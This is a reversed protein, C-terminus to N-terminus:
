RTLRMGYEEAAWKWSSNVVLTSDYEEIVCPGTGREGPKLSDRKLVGVPEFRQGVWAIRTSASGPAAPASASSLRTPRRRVSARVRINVVEMEDALAYGYLERHREDFAKRVASDSAYPLVLEHSQGSYRGEFYRRVSYDPFGEARMERAAVSELSHFRDRLRPGREMVPSTFTRTVEGVLLGYASFLGAHLPVVVDDVELDEALDCAHVPGAGGFAVMVFERPDRGREITVMSLARAMDNNVLRIIGRSAALQDLGLKRSIRRISRLALDKRIPMSGGLLSSPSLRGLVVNADTVTPEIGGRAYCAPGPVSGASRPGVRLDGAEDVRAVTGGGASVEALDIFQGRVPYGSGRISRGSHTRGAAEFEGIVDPEGDIVTGAKATTGGMDFTLVRNLSLETALQRSAIVGAAPGSEIVTVPRRSAFSVTSSGGDSNMVYIPARIRSRRLDTELATLYGTMLPSLAANVVTTSMREYERYEPDVESSISIHGKFGAKSLADRIAAEHLGNTYSNLLCIAVADFGGRIIVRALAAADGAALPRDESGDAGVRCDVTLRDKREVLPAPRRTDLDYLEPRRQRGIELIDTFGANTVLATKALGSKTLLANTALTTAHSILSAGRAREGLGRLAQLVGMAPDATTIVKLVSVGAPDAVVIDTFTGGVDVGVTSM